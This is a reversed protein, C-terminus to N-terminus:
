RGRIQQRQNSSPPSFGTAVLNNFKNPKKHDFLLPRAGQGCAARNGLVSNERTCCFSSLTRCVTCIAGTIRHRFRCRNQTPLADDRITRLVQWTIGNIRQFSVGEGRLCGLPSKREPRLEPRMPNMGSKFALGGQGDSGTRPFPHSVFETMGYAICCAIRCRLYPIWMHAPEPIPAEAKPGRILVADHYAAACGPHSCLYREPAM